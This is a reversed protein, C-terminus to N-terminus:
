FNIFCFDQRIHTLDETAPPTRYGCGLECLETEAQLQDHFGVNARIFILFKM